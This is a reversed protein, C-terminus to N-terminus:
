QCASRHRHQRHVADLQAVRDHWFRPGQSQAASRDHTRAGGRSSALWDSGLPQSSKVQPSTGVSTGMEEIKKKTATERAADQEAAIREWRDREDSRPAYRGYVRAVMGGLLTSQQEGRTDLGRSAIQAFLGGAVAAVLLCMLAYLIVVRGAQAYLRAAFNYILASDYKVTKLAM